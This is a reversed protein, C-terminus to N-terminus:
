PTYRGELQAKDISNGIIANVIDDRTASPPMGLTTELAYLRFRCVQAQNTPNPGGYGHEGFDNQGETAREPKWGEPIETVTPDIDWVLWHTWPESSQIEPDSSEVLLVLSATESPTNRIELPPNINDTSYGYQNPITEGDAFAPSRIRLDAM